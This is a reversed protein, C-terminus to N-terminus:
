ITFLVWIADDIITVEDMSHIIKIELKAKPKLLERLKDVDVRISM